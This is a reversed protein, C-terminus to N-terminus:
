GLRHRMANMIEEKITRDIEDKTDKVGPEIFQRKLAGTRTRNHASIEIEKEPISRGFAQRIKRSYKGVKAEAKIGREWFGGYFADDGVAIKGIVGKTTKTTTASINKKLRGTWKKLARGSLYHSQIRKKPIKIAKQMARYIASHFEVPYRKLRQFIEDEITYRIKM